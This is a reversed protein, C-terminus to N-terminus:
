GQIDTESRKRKRGALAKVRRWLATVDERDFLIYVALTAASSVVGVLCAYGLWDLYEGPVIGILGFGVYLAAIVAASQLIQRVNRTISMDVLERPSLILLEILMYVDAACIAAMSGVLGWLKTFVATLIVVIVAQTVTQRRISKFKGFSQILMGHPSKFNDLLGKATILIGFVPLYYNVDTIGKTYISIFPMLTVIMTAYLITILIYFATRFQETTKKLLEKDGTANINGFAAGLGSTFVTIGRAVSGAIMNYISYVSILKFNLLATMIFMPAGSTVMGVIQNFMADWRKNLAKMNPEAKFNISPYRIRVYVALIVSTFLFSVIALARVAIVGLGLKIGTWIIALHVILQIAGSYSIAYGCQDATLLTRYKALIFYNITGNASLVLVLLALEFYGLAETEGIFPYVLALIVSALAFILGIRLYSIRAASVISDRAANDRDALPKYLAFTTASSVGAEIVTIYTIFQNISTTIGNIESGYASLMLKPSIFGTVITVVQLLASAIVNKIFQKTRTQRM